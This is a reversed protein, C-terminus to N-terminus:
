KIYILKGDLFLLLRTRVFGMSSYIWEERTKGEFSPLFKISDPAGWAYRVEKQTMGLDIEGKRIHDQINPPFNKIEEETFRISKTCGIQLLFFLVFFLILYKKM